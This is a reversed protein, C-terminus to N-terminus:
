NKNQKAANLVKEISTILENQGFPKTLYDQVKAIHLGLVKDISQARPTLIIVPINEIDPNAKMARFVEWGDMDPMMLDLLVVDPKIQEVAVLGERGGTVGTVEYNKKALMLKILDIMEPKDEIYIVKIAM